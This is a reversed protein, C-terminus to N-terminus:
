LIVGGLSAAANMVGQYPKGDIRSIRSCTVLNTMDMTCVNWGGVDSAESIFSGAWFFIAFVLLILHALRHYAPCAGLVLSSVLMYSVGLITVVAKSSMLEFSRSLLLIVQAFLRVVINMFANSTGSDHFSLAYSTLGVVAMSLIIIVTQIVTLIKPTPVIHSDYNYVDPGRLYGM